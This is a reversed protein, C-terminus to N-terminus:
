SRSRALRWKLWDFCWFALGLVCGGAFALCTIGGFEAWDTGAFGDGIGRAFFRLFFILLIAVGGGLTSVWWKLEPSQPETAQPLSSTPRPPPSWTNGARRPPSAPPLLDDINKSFLPPDEM